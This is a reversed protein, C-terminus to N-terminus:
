YVFCFLKWSYPFPVWHKRANERDTVVMRIAMNGWNVFLVSSHSQVPQLEAFQVVAKAKARSWPSMSRSMLSFPKVSYVLWMWINAAIYLKCLGPAELVPPIYALKLCRTNFHGRRQWRSGPGPGAQEADEPHVGAQEEIQTADGWAPLAQPGAAGHQVITELQQKFKGLYLLCPPM